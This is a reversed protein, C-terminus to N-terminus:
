RFSFPHSVLFQNSMFSRIDTRIHLLIVSQEHIILITSNRLGIHLFAYCYFKDNKNLLFYEFNIIEITILVKEYNTRLIGFCHWYCNIIFIYNREFEQAHPINKGM